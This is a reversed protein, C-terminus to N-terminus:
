EGIKINVLFTDGEGRAHYGENYIASMDTVKEGTLGQFIGKYLSKMEKPNKEMMAGTYRSDGTWERVTEYWTAEKKNGQTEGKVIRKSLVDVFNEYKKLYDDYTPSRFVGNIDRFMGNKNVPILGDVFDVFFEAARVQEESLKEDRFYLERNPQEKAMKAIALRRDFSSKAFEAVRERRTDGADTLIDWKNGSESNTASQTLKEGM